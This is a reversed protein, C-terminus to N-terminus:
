LYWDDNQRNSAFLPGLNFRQVGAGIVVYGLGEAHFFKQCANSCREPARRSRRSSVGLCRDQFSAVEAQIKLGAFYANVSILNMQRRFLELQQSMQDPVCSFH